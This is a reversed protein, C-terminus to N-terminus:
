FLMNFKLNGYPGLINRIRLPVCIATVNMAFIGKDSFFIKFLVFKNGYCICLVCGRTNRTNLCLRELLFPEKFSMNHLADCYNLALHLM